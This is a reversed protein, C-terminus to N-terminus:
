PLFPVPNPSTPHLPLASVLSTILLTWPSSALLSSSNATVTPPILNCLLYARTLGDVVSLPLETEASPAPISPLNDVIAQVTAYLAPVAGSVMFSPPLGLMPNAIAEGGYVVLLTTALRKVFSAEEIDKGGTKAAHARHLLERVQRLVICLRFTAVVDLTSIPVGLWTFPAIPQLSWRFVEIIPSLVMM